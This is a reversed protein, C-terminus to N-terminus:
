GTNNNAILDPFPQLACARRIQRAFRRRSMPLAQKPNYRWEASDQTPRDEVVDAGTPLDLKPALLLSGGKQPWGRV